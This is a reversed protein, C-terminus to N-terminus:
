QIQRANSENTVAFGVVLVDDTQRNEGKRRDFIAELQEKQESFPLTHIEQLLNRFNKILFKRGTDACMQDPYGDTFLYFKDGAVIEIENQSFDAKEKAHGGISKADGKIEFIQGKRFYILPRKAGSFTLRTGERDIAIAAVDMGDLNENSERKLLLRLAIDVKSLIESPNSIGKENIVSHFLNAGILSMFAGPVGHGTCDALIFINKTNKENRIQTAWYFDGSVIDRPYYIIFYDSFFKSLLDKKPLIANQIRKAYNISAQVDAFLESLISHQDELQEAIVRMEEHQQTIEENKELLEATRELVKIELEDRQQEILKANEISKQLAAEQAQRVEEKLRNIRSAIALSFITMEFCCGITYANRTFLTYDIKSQLAMVLILIGAWRFSQAFLLYLAPKYGSKAARVAFFACYLFSIFNVILNIQLGVEREFISVCLTLLFLLVLVRGAIEGTRSQMNERLFLFIFSFVFTSSLGLFATSYYNLHPSEAWFWEFAYGTLVFNSLTFSAANLSYYLYFKERTSIWVFLNYLLMLLIAGICIATVTDQLHFHSMMEETRGIRFPVVIEVPCDYYRLYFTKESGKETNLPFVFSSTPFIKESFAINQGQKGVLVKEGKIEEYLFVEGYNNYGLDLILKENTNNKLTFRIWVVEKQKGLNLVKKDSATFENNNTENEYNGVHYFLYEGYLGGRTSQDFILTKQAAVSSSFLCLLCIFLLRM